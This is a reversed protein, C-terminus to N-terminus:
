NKQKLKLIIFFSAIGHSIVLLIIEVIAKAIGKKFSILNSSLQRILSDYQGSTNGATLNTLQENTMEIAKMSAVINQCRFIIFIIFTAFIVLLAILVIYNKQNKKIM